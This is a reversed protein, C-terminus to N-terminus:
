RRRRGEYALGSTITCSVAVAAIVYRPWGEVALMPAMLVLGIALLFWVM